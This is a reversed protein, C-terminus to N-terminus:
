LFYFRTGYTVCVNGMKELRDLVGSYRRVMVKGEDPLKERLLRVEELLKSADEVTFLRRSQVSSPVSAVIVCGHKQAIGPLASNEPGFTGMCGRGEDWSLPCKGCTAGMEDFSLMDWGTLRDDAGAKEMLAAKREAPVKDLSVWGTYLKQSEATLLQRDAENKVKDLYLTEMEPDLRNRKLFAEWDAGLVLKAQSIPVVLDFEALDEFGTVDRLNVKLLTTKGVKCLASDSDLECVAISVGM